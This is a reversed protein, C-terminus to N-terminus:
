FQGNLPHYVSITSNATNGELDTVTAQLTHNGVPSSSSDWNYSLSSTKSSAVMEGDISLTLLSVARDDRASVAIRILGVARQGNQPSNFIISPPEKDQPNKILLVRSKTISYGSEDLVTVKLTYSGNRLQTSDFDLGTEFINARSFSNNITGLEQEDLSFSISLIAKEGSAEAQLRVFSDLPGEVPSEISVALKNQQLGSASSDFVGRQAPVELVIIPITLLIFLVVFVAFFDKFNYPPNIAQRIKTVM